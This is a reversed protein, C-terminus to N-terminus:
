DPIHVFLVPTSVCMPLSWIFIEISILIIAMNALGGTFSISGENFLLLADENSIREGNCVKEAITRLEISLGPAKLMFDPDSNTLM